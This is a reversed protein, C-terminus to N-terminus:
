GLASAKMGAVFRDLLAAARGSNSHEDDRTEIRGVVYEVFLPELSEPLAIVDSLATVPPLSRVLRLRYQEGGVAPPYTMFKLPEGKPRMWNSAAGPTANTWQPRFQTLTSEDCEPLGVVEILATARDVAVSQLYGADCTHLVDAEFLGPNHTIAASLADNLAAILDADTSTYGTDTRTDNLLTRAKGVISGATMTYTRPM